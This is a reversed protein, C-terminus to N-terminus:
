KQKLKPEEFSMWFGLLPNINKQLKNRIDDKQHYYISQEM